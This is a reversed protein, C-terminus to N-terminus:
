SDSRRSQDDLKIINQECNGEKTGGGGGEKKNKETPSKKM